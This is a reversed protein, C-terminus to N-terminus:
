FTSGTKNFTAKLTHCCIHNKMCTKLYFMDTSNLISHALLFTAGSIYVSQYAVKTEIRKATIKMCWHFINDVSCTIHLHHNRSFKILDM